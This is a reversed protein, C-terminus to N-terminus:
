EDDWSTHHNVMDVGSHHQGGWEAAPEPVDDPVMLNNLEQRASAVAEETGVLTVTVDEEVNRDNPVNIRAKTQSQLKSIQSGRPGIIKGIFSGRPFRSVLTLRILL